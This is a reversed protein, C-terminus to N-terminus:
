VLDRLTQLALLAQGKANPHTGAASGYDGFADKSFWGIGCNAHHLVHCGFLSCMEIIISNYHEISRGGVVSPFTSTRRAPPITGCWVEANPFQKTLETLMNAYASRFTSIDSTLDSSGDYDGIPTSYSFDNTGLRVFIVDPEATATKLIAVNEARGGASNLMNAESDRTSAVCRGAWSNNVLLNMGLAEKVIHWWMQSVDSVGLNSGTYYDRNGDPITGSYTSISDGLISLNKGQYNTAGKLSLNLGEVINNMHDHTLVQGESFTESKYSM